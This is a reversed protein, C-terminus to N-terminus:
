YNSLNDEDALSGAMKYFVNMIWNTATGAESVGKAIYIDITDDAPYEYGIAGPVGEGALNYAVSTAGEQSIGNFFRANSGGDGVEIDSCSGTLAAIAVNMDVIKAGKPIPIMEITEGSAVGKNTFRATRCLVLGPLTYDPMIGATVATSKRTAM